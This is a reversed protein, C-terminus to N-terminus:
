KKCKIATGATYYSTFSKGDSSICRVTYTYTTGSKATKDTFTLSTTEGIRSWGTNATKRYVRYRVAGAPKKWGIQVGSKTNKLTPAAPAAIYTYKWGAEKFGTLFDGDKDLPRVTYIYATGSKVDTNTYSLATTEAIRKWSSGSKVYVRYKSAGPVKGWTMKTGGIVNEFSKIVPASACVITKGERIFDSTFNKSDKSICRVTYTYTTGQKATKDTYTLSTTEGLRSWSTNATKRYVRYKAAGDSRKWSVKVGSNTNTLSIPAPAAIYTYKWGAEKFGTIFDGNSDLARVTYTYTTGSKAEKNIYTTDATEAIRKWSSGNRIYVRYTAAGNVEGWSVQTGGVVNAFSRVVPASLYTITRGVRDFDSTFTQGDASVCRVTYTYVTGAKVDKDKASLGATEAIRKWSESGVKHYVRYKEAGAVQDWRIEVAGDENAVGTIVPTKLMGKVRITGSNASNYKLKATIRASGNGVGKVTGASNVTAVDTDSSSWSIGINDLKANSYPFGANQVYMAAATTQGEDLEFSDLYVDFSYIYPGSHNFSFSVGISGSDEDFEGVALSIKQSAKKNSPKACNDTDNGKGFCQVWTTAGNDKFCGIGITTYDETLINERHGQSDMWTKMAEKANNQGIAVNEAAMLDNATSCASGDPRTHSFLVANEAARQMATDLLSANMVLPKLGKKAREQNTLALVSFAEQYDFTGSITAEEIERLGNEGYKKLDKNACNIVVDKHFAISHVFKTSAPLNVTKLSRCGYFATRYIKEVKPFDIATLSNDNLFSQFPIETVSPATFSVLKECNGFSANGIETINQELTVKELSTCDAFTLAYIEELGGFDIDKLSRCERFMMYSTSKLGKGFKVSQLATCGYFAFDGAQTVSDPIEITKLAEANQIASEQLTTVANLNITQLYENCGFAGRSITKVSAPVTFSAGPKKMPYAVLADKSKSYLVGDESSYNPNAADVNFSTVGVNFFALGNLKKLSKGFSVNKVATTQFAYEDIEEVGKMSVNALRECNCFVGAGIKKVSEPLDLRTLSHCNYFAGDGIGTVSNPITIASLSGFDMFAFRSIDTVGNNIVVNKVTAASDSWPYSRDDQMLGEMSGSGSITLTTGSVKFTIGAGTPVLQANKNMRPKTLEDAEDGASEDPVYGHPVASKEDTDIADDDVPDPLVAAGDSVAATEVASVPLALTLTTMLLIFVLLTSLTRKM